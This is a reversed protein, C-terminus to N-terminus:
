LTKISAVIADMEKLMSDSPNLPTTYQILGVSTFAAFAGTKDAQCLDYKQNGSTNAPDLLGRRYLVSNAGTIEVASVYDTGIGVTLPKDPYGCGGGDFAGQSIMLQYNNKTLETTDGAPTQNNIKRTIFWDNPVTIQYKAFSSAGGASVTTQGSTAATASPAGTPNPAMTVTVTAKASQTPVTQTAIKATGGKGAFLLYGGLLGLLLMVIGIIVLPLFNLRQKAIAPSVPQTAPPAVPQPIINQQNPDM